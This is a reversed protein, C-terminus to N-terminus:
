EKLDRLIPTYCLETAVEKIILRLVVRVIIAKIHHHQQNINLEKRHQQQESNFHSNSDFTLPLLTLIALESTSILPINSTHLAFECHIAFEVFVLHFERVININM